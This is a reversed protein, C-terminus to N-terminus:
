EIEASVVFPAMVWVPPAIVVAAEVTTLLKEAVPSTESSSAVFLKRPGTRSFPWVTVIRSVSASCSSRTVAVPVKVTLAPPATVCVAAVAVTVPVALMVAVPWVMSRLLSLSKPEVTAAAPPATLRVSILASSSPSISAEVRVTLAPPSTECLAAAVTAFPVVTVAGPRATSRSLAAFAKVPTTFTVPPATSISLVIASPRPATVAVVSSAVAAVPSTVLAAPSTSLTVPVVVM